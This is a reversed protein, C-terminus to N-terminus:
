AATPLFRAFLNSGLDTRLQARFIQQHNKRIRVIKIRGREKVAKNPIASQVNINDTASGRFVAANSFGKLQTAICDAIIRDTPCQQAAIKTVGDPNGLRTMIEELVEDGFRRGIDSLMATTWNRYLDHMGLFENYMRQAIRKAGEADGADIAETLRDVSRKGMDQLEKESFFREQSM